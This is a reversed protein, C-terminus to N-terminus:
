KAGTALLMNIKAASTVDPKPRPGTNSPSSGPWLAPLCQMAGAAEGLAVPQASKHLTKFKLQFM